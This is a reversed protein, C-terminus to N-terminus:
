EEAKNLPRKRDILFKKDDIVKFMINIGIRMYKKYKYFIIVYKLYFLFSNCQSKINTTGLYYGIAYKSGM